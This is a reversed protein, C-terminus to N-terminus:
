IKEIASKEIWGKLGRSNLVVEYWSDKLDGTKVLHGQTVNASVPFSSGPGSRIEASSATIVALNGEEGNARLWLWGGSLMLLVAMCFVATKGKRKLLWFAGAACSLWLFLYFLGKLETFSLFYFAKHLVEPMGSPVLREGSSTLALSLNERIDGDRPDLQFARYYNAVALGKEGMKFYCNGINYYLFPDTPTTKLLNQYSALAEAFRGDRYLTEAQQLPQAWLPLACICFATILLFRLTKKM